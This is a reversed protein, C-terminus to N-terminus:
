RRSPASSQIEVDAPNANATGPENTRVVARFGAADAVYEVVRQRGDAEALSYSGTVAGSGDANESRSLQTGFEDASQFAFSFPKPTENILDGRLAYQPAYRSIIQPAAAYAIRPAALVQQPAAIIQARGYGGLGIRPTHALNITQLEGLGTAGITLPNIRLLQASAGAIVVFLAILKFM